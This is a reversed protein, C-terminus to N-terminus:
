AHAWRPSVKVIFMITWEIVLLGMGLRLKGRRSYLRTCVALWADGLCVFGASPLFVYMYM